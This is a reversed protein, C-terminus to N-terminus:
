KTYIITQELHILKPIFVFHSELLLLIIRYDIKTEISGCLSSDIIIKQGVICLSNQVFIFSSVYRFQNMNFFWLICLIFFLPCKEDIKTFLDLLM